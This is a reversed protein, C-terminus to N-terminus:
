ASPVTPIQALTGEMKNNSSIQLCAPRNRKRKKLSRGKEGGERRVGHQHHVSVSEPENNTTSDLLHPTPCNKEPEKSSPRPSTGARDASTKEKRASVTTRSCSQALRQSVRRAGAALRRAISRSRNGHPTRQRRTKNNGTTRGRGVRSKVLLGHRALV